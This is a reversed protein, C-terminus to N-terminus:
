LMVRMKLTTAEKYLDENKLLDENQPPDRTKRKPRDLGVDRILPTTNNYVSTTNILCLKM